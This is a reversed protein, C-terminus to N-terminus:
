VFHTAHAMATSNKAATAPKPTIIIPYRQARM